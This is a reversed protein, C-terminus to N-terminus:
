EPHIPGFGWHERDQLASQLQDGAMKLPRTAKNSSAEGYTTPKMGEPGWLELVRILNDVTTLILREPPTLNM